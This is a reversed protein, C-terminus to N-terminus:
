FELVKSPSELVCKGNKLSEMCHLILGIYYWILQEYNPIDESSESIASKSVVTADDSTTAPQQSSIGFFVSVSALSRKQSTLTQHKKGKLHSTLAFEGMSSVDADKMCVICRAKQKDGKIKRLWEKHLPKQPWLDSLVCKGMAKFRNGHFLGVLSM